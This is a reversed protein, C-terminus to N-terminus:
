GLTACGSVCQCVPPVEDFIVVTTKVLGQFDEDWCILQGLQPGRVSIHLLWDLVVASLAEKLAPFPLVPGMSRQYTIDRLGLM